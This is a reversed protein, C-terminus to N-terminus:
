IVGKLLQRLLQEERNASKKIYEGEAGREDRITRWFIAKNSMRGPERNAGGKLILCDSRKDGTLNGGTWSPPKGKGGRKIGHQAKV